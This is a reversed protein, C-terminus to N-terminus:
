SVTKTYHRPAEDSYITIQNGEADEYTLFAVIYIDTANTLNVTLRYQANRATSTSVSKRLSADSPDDFAVPSYVFGSSVYTYGSAPVSREMMFSYKAGDGNIDCVDTIGILPKVEAKADVTTAVIETNAGIFFTYTSKYSIVKGSTANKWGGFYQNEGLVTDDFVVTVKDNYSYEGNVSDDTSGVVTLTYKVAAVSYTPVLKIDETVTITADTIENGDGDAWATVTYGYSYPAIEALTIVTGNAVVTSTEKGNRGVVTVTVNEHLSCRTCIGDVYDHGLAEIAETYSEGCECTFTKVGPETCTAPTTISEVYTHTHGTADDILKLIPDKGAAVNWKSKDNGLWAGAQYDAASGETSNDTLTLKEGEAISIPAMCGCPIYSCDTLTWSNVDKAVTSVYVYGVFDGTTLVNVGPTESDYGGAETLEDATASVSVAGVNYCNTLAHDYTKGFWSQNQIKGIFGGASTKGSITGANICRTMTVLGFKTGFGVFGGAAGLDSGWQNKFFRVSIISGYNACDTFTINAGNQNNNNSPTTAAFGGVNAGYVSAKNVCNDFTVSSNHVLTAVFGGADATKSTLNSPINDITARFEVGKSVGDVVCNTFSVTGNVTGIMLGVPKGNYSQTAHGSVNLDTLVTTGSANCAVAGTSSDGYCYVYFDTLNFNKLTADKVYTFLGCEGGQSYLGSITHGDGDFVGSFPNAKAKGIPTWNTLADTSGPMYGDGLVNENMVIDAGLKYSALAYEADAEDTSNVKQALLALQEVTEIVYPDDSTGTGSAFAEAVDYTAASVTLGCVCSLMTAIVTVALFMSLIRKM